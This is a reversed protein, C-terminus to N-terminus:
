KLLLRDWETLWVEDYELAQKDPSKVIDQLQFIVLIGFVSTCPVLQLKTLSLFTLM